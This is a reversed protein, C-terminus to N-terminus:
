GRRVNLCCWEGRKWVTAIEWSYEELVDTVLNAQEVLIGSLIAWSSSKALETLPPLLQVIVEALINCVIGDAGGPILTLLKEASGQEIHLQSPALGNLQRNDRAARVALSDTDVAYVQSAGLLCAGLALIGSGCGVDAITLSSTPEALYMELAELCLQTTPHTGTGFAMGPDLRLILRESKVPPEWWAPYILFRDGIEAPQWYEKWSTAWDEEDILHWHALPVPLGLARADGELGGKLEQWAPPQTAMQPLYARILSVQGQKETATGSCGFQQLRWFISEELDPCCEVEIEWWRNTM